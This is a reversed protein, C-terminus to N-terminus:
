CSRRVAGLEALTRATLTPGDRTGKTAHRVIAAAIDYPDVHPLEAKVLDFVSGMVQLEEPGFVADNFLRFIDAM